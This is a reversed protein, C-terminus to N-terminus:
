VCVCKVYMYVHTYMDMDANVRLVTKRRVAELEEGVERVDRQLARAIYQLDVRTHVRADCQPIKEDVKGGIAVKSGLRSCDSFVIGALSCPVQWM